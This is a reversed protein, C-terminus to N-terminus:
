DPRPHVPVGHPRSASRQSVHATGVLFIERDGSRVLHVDSQDLPATAGGSADGAGETVGSEDQNM